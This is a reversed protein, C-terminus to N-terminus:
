NVRKKEHDECGPLLMLLLRGEGVEIGTDM